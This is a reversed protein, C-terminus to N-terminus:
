AAASRYALRRCIRPPKHSPRPWKRSCDDPEQEQHEQLAERAADVADSLTERESELEELREQLDRTDVINDGKTAAM